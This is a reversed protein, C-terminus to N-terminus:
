CYAQLFLYHKLGKKFSQLSVAERLSQPLNNSVTPGFYSFSREGFTKYHCYPKTFITTDNESRLSRTPKYRHLFDNIYGPAQSNLAKYCFLCVKYVIRKEVPLWHLEKLVPTIHDRKRTRKILRAAQNQVIQLRHMADQPLGSLLSNCFDLRSLVLSTVLTKTVDETLCNRISGINRLQFYM